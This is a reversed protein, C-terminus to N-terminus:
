LGKSETVTTSEQSALRVRGACVGKGHHSVGQRYRGGSYEQLKVHPEQMREPHSWCWWRPWIKMMIRYYHGWSLYGLALARVRTEQLKYTLEGDGHQPSPCPSSFAQLRVEV